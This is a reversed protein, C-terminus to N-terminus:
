SWRLGTLAERGDKLIWAPLHGLRAEQILERSGLGAAQRDPMNAEEKQREEGEM